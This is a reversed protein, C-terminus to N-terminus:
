SNLLCIGMAPFLYQLRIWLCAVQIEACFSVVTGNQLERNSAYVKVKVRVSFSRM